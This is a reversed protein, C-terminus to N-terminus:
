FSVQIGASYQRANPFHGGDIGQSFVGGVIDPDYGKYKTITCLNQASVYIRLKEVFFKRTLEVPLTYGLQLNKLRIFSGNEVFRDSTQTNDTSGSYMRPYENSPNDWTWPRVESPINDVKFQLCSVWVNNYIKNGFRSNWFMNFDFGRWEATFNLGAEVKPLPSGLWDRDDNDIVGDGNLDVYRVDGPQANPQLLKVTGDPLTTTHAYVEDMSQFIGNTRRAYFDSISRGVETRCIGDEYFSEGLALVKNSATSVNASVSYSFEGVRDRWGAMFEFGRNRMKGYNTWLYDTGTAWATKVNYLLDSSVANYWDISGFLRSNFLDFDIGINTTTKTEWGLDVNVRSTQTAGQHLTENGSPGFIANFGEYPGSHNISSLYSYNGLAQMDGIKGWSGRIKLNNVVERLPEWFNEESPRWGISFSPFNGRRKDPGFKSCGDSRFNFQFYYRSAYNYDLRALVSTMRREQQSGWMNNQVGVLDIQCLGDVQQNYGEAKLYHWNVDEMTYGVLANINHDAIEQSYNLTNELILSFRSDRIDELKNEYRQEGSAMRLTYAKDFNKTRGWWADMGVNFKYTFYRFLNLEAYINGIIRDNVSQNDYREQLGVPNSIYTPFNASGYGFGGKGSPENPDRVPIVSPTTLADWFPSAIYNNSHTHQYTVNEGITFAKYHADNNIRVTFRDYDPGKVMGTQHMYGFSVASHLNETGQTYYVNYDQTLGNQYVADQWDTDPLVTGVEIGGAPWTEGSNIYAQENYYMFEAGKMMKIKKPMQAVTFNASVDLSPKGAKGKKTTLLIVGNAGRAGYIAAASADKLVQMSEIENPNLNNADNVILGDIVYLPGVNSFSGVGRVRISSTAGPQSSTAVSVGPVQGQLMSAVDTAPLKRAKDMDVVSVSGTLDAKKQTGYGIVVVQDLQQASSTLVVNLNSQGAIKVEKTDCGIYSFVLTGDAPASISYNGDIDTVTGTTTGKLLVSVGILPENDTDTVIGTVQLNGAARLTLCFLTMLLLTAVSRRPYHNSKM